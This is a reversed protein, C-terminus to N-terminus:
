HGLSTGFADGAESTELVSPWNQTWVGSGMRLPASAFGNMTVMAGVGFKEDIDFGPIGFALDDIGKWCM